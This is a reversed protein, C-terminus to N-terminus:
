MGDSDHPTPQKEAHRTDCSSSCVLKGTSSIRLQNSPLSQMDLDHGNHQACTSVSAQVATTGNVAHRSGETLLKLTRELM